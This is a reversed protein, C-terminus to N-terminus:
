ALLILAYYITSPYRILQTSFTRQTFNNILQISLRWFSILEGLQLRRKKPCPEEESVHKRKQTDKVKLRPLQLKKCIKNCEHRDEFSKVGYSGLDWPARETVGSSQRCNYDLQLYLRRCLYLLSSVHPDASWHSYSDKSGHQCHRTHWCVCSIQRFRWVHSSCICQNGDWYLRRGCWKSRSFTIREMQDGQQSLRHDPNSGCSIQRSSSSPQIRQCLFWQSDRDSRWPIRRQREVQFRSYM